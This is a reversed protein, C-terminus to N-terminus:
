SHLNGVREIIVCCVQSPLKFQSLSAMLDELEKTATSKKSSHKGSSSSSRILFIFMRLTMHFCYGEYKKRSSSKPTDTTNNLSEILDDISKANKTTSEDMTPM